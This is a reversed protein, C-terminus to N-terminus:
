KNMPLPQLMSLRNGETDIFSVYRGVGPIDAPEGLIKGGEAKVKKISDSIDDVAIVVSPHQEPMDDTKQYLGGNIAGPNKPRMTKEDIETTTVVVYNGMDPGMQNALWGFVKAYFKKMRERDNAPLEFHVVPNMKM